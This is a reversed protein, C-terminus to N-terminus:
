LYDNVENLLNSSLNNSDKLIKLAVLENKYRDWKQNQLNWNYIPGDLWNALYVIGFGGNGIQKKIQLRNYPIWEM